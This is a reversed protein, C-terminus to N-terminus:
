LFFHLFNSVGRKQALKAVKWWFLNGNEGQFSILKENGPLPQGDRAILEPKYDWTDLQSCAGSCFIVLVKKAKAAFHPARAAHPRSPNVQPVIPVVGEASVTEAALSRDGALLSALAMSGLATGTHQLFSRRQMLELGCRTLPPTWM